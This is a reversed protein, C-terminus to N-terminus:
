TKFMSANKTQANPNDCGCRASSKQHYGFWDVTLTVLWNYSPHDITPILEECYQVLDKESKEPHAVMWQRVQRKYHSVSFM